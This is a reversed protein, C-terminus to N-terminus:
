NINLESGHPYEFWCHFVLLEERSFRRGQRKIDGEGMVLM